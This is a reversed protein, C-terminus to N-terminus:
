DDDANFRLHRLIFPRIEDAPETGIDCSRTYVKQVAGRLHKPTAAIIFREKRVIIARCPSPKRRGNTIRAASRM